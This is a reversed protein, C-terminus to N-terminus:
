GRRACILRTHEHVIAVDSLERMAATEDSISLGVMDAIERYFNMNHLWDKVGEQYDSRDPAESYTFLFLADDRMMKHINAFVDEIDEHPMHTFVHNCFVYDVKHPLWDMQNDTNCIITPNKGAVGSAHFYERAHDLRGASPDNGSYHGAELYDIIWRASRGHGLGIEHLYHHPMLGFRQLLVLDGEGRDALHQSLKEDTITTAVAYRDLRRAYWTLYTGGKRKHIWLDLRERGDRTANRLFRYRKYFIRWVRRVLDPHEGSSM